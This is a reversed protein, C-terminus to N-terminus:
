RSIRSHEQCGQLLRHQTREPSWTPWTFVGDDPTLLFEGTGDPSYTRIRADSGVVAIRNVTYDPPWQFGDREGGALSGVVTLVLVVVALVAVGAYLRFSGTM